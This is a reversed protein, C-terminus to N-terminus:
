NLVLVQSSTSTGNSISVLYSGTPTNDPLSIPIIKSANKEIRKTFILKGSVDHVEVKVNTLM